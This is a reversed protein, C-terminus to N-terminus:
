SRLKETVVTADLAHLARIGTVPTWRMRTRPAVVRDPELMRGALLHVEPAIPRRAPDAALMRVILRSLPEPAGAVHVLDADPFRGTLARYAIVGLSYVDARGDFRGVLEPAAYVSLDVDDGAIVGPARMADWGGIIVPAHHSGTGFYIADPHLACHVVSATHAAALVAAVDRLLAAIEGADLSRRLMVDALSIGEPLESACWTNGDPLKGHDTMRTVGRHRIADLMCTALVIAATEDPGRVDIALRRGTAVQTARYRGDTTRGTIQYGSLKM